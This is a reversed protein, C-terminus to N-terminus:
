VIKQAGMTETCANFLFSKLEKKNMEQPINPHFHGGVYGNVWDPINWWKEVDEISVNVENACKQKDTEAPNKWRWLLINRASGSISLENIREKDKNWESFVDPISESADEGNATDEEELLEDSTPERDSDEAYWWDMFAAAAEDTDQLNHESCYEKYREKVEDSLLAIVEKAPYQGSIYTDLLEQEDEFKDVEKEM